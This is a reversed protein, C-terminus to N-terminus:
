RRTSSTPTPGPRGCRPTPGSRAPRSRTPGCTRTPTAYGGEITTIIAAGTAHHMHVTVPTAANIVDSAVLQTAGWSDDSARYSRLKAQYANNDSTETWVFLADGADDTAVKVDFVKAASAADNLFLPSAPPFALAGGVVRAFTLDYLAFGPTAPKQVLYPAWLAGTASRAFVRTNMNNPGYQPTGPAASRDTTLLVPPRCRLALARTATSVCGAASTVVVQLAVETGDGTVDFTVQAAAAGATITANSSLVSWAISTGQPQAPISAVLGKDGQRATARATITADPAAVAVITAQATAPPGGPGTVTLTYTTTATVTVMAQGTGPAVAIPGPTVTGLGNAFEYALSAASGHCATAPATFSTITPPGSADPATADAGGADPGPGDTAADPGAGDPAAADARAGDAGGDSVRAAIWWLGRRDLM